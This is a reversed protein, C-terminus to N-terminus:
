RQDFVSGGGFNEKWLYKSAQGSWRVHFRDLDRSFMYTQHLTFDNQIIDINIKSSM